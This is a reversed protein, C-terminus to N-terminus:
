RALYRAIRVCSVGKTNAPGDFTESSARGQVDSNGLRNQSADPRIKETKTEPNKKVQKEKESEKKM